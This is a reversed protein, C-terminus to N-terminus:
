FETYKALNHFFSFTDESYMYSLKWLQLAKKSVGQLIKDKYLIM